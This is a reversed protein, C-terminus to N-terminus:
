VGAHRFPEVLEGLSDASVHSFSSAVSSASTWSSSGVSEADEAVRKRRKSRTLDGESIQSLPVVDVLLLAAGLSTMPACPPCPPWSPGPMRRTFLEGRQIQEMLRAQSFESVLQNSPFAAERAWRLQLIVSATPDLARQVAERAACRAGAVARAIARKEAALAEWHTDTMHTSSVKWFELAEHACRLAKIVSGDTVFHRAHDPVTAMTGFCCLLTATAGICTHANGYKSDIRVMPETLFTRQAHVVRCSALGRSLHPVDAGRMSRLADAVPLLQTRISRLVYAREAPVGRGELYACISGLTVGFSAGCVHMVQEKRAQPCPDQRPRKGSTHSPPPPLCLVLRRVYIEDTSHYAFFKGLLKVRETGAM